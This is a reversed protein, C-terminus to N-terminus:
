WISHMLFTSFLLNNHVCYLLITCRFDTATQTSKRSNPFFSVGKNCDHWVACLLLVTAGGQSHYLRTAARFGLFDM